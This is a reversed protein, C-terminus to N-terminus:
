GLTLTVPMMIVWGGGEAFIQESSLIAKVQITM